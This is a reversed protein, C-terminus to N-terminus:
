SAHAELLEKQELLAVAENRFVVLAAMERDTSEVLARLDEVSRTTRARLQIPNAECEAAFEADHAADLGIHAIPAHRRQLDALMSYGGALVDSLKMGSRVKASLERFHREFIPLTRGSKVNYLHEPKRSVSDFARITIDAFRRIRERTQIIGAGPVSNSTPNMNTSM